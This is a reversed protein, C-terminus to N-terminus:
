PATTTQVANLMSQISNLDHWEYLMRSPWIDPKTITFELKSFFRFPLHEM